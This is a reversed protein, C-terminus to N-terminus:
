SMPAWTLSTAPSREGEPTRGLADGVTQVRVAPAFQEIPYGADHWEVLRALAPKRGKKAKKATPVNITGVLRLIRDCNHCHDAQFVKELQINYAELEQAKAINGGIELKDSPDLKWLAQVGGGGDVIVYPNPRIPM